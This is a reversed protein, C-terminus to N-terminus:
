PRTRETAAPGVFVAVVLLNGLGQVAVVVAVALVVLLATETRAPAAGLAGADEPQAVAATPSPAVSCVIRGGVDIVDGQKIGGTFAHAM